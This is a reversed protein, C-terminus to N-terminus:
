RDARKKVVKAPVGVAISYPPIDRTVVAGAGVVSGTGVTVGGLIKAGSGIWVDDEIVIPLKIVGQQYIPKSVDSYIHDSSVIVTHAAIRVGNGITLGGHGYLISFPNVTCNNGIKIFGGYAIAMSYDHIITENGVSVNGEIVAGRLVSVNNGLLISKKGALRATWHVIVGSGCGRIHKRLFLLKIQHQIALLM